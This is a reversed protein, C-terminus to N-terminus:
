IQTVQVDLWLDDHDVIYDVHSEGGTAFPVLGLGPDIMSQVQHNTQDNQATLVASSFNARLIAAGAQVLRGLLGAKFASRSKKQTIMYPGGGLVKDADRLKGVIKAEGALWRAAIPAPGLQEVKVGTFPLNRKAVGRSFAERARDIMEKFRKAPIGDVTEFLWDLHEKYDLYSERINASQKSVIEAGDLGSESTFAPNVFAAFKDSSTKALRSQFTEENPIMLLRKENIRLANLKFAEAWQEVVRASASERMNVALRVHSVITSM